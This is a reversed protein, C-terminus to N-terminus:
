ENQTGLIEPLHQSFASRAFTKDCGAQEAAKRVEVQVHSVFGVTRTHMWAPDAKMQRILSIPDAPLHNLDFIVVAIDAPSHEHLKRQFAAHDAVFEVPRGLKKAADLIKVSFMLDAMVALIM